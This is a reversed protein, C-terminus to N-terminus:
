SAPSSVFAEQAYSPSHSFLRRLTGKDRWEICLRLLNVYHGKDLQSRSLRTAEKLARHMWCTYFLPEILTKDLGTQRRYHDVRELLLRSLPTDSLLIQAFGQLRDHTGQARAAGVSYSRMFYFLDWLPMGQAEAAEWDLFAVREDPTVVVNWPGPDGHQFVLPFARAHDGVHALQGELFSEHDASLQYISTFRKFLVRLVGAAEHPTAAHADATRSALTTFWDLAALLYPCGATFRTRERFPQGEIATEGIIALRNHYGWFAARPASQPVAVGMEQLLTLARHENELRANYQADRVMKVVYAPKIASSHRRDEEFLFFLVKRSSYDGRAVVGWHRSDGVDVGSAWALDVLYQPLRGAHLHSAAGFLKGQRRIIPVRRLMFREANALLDLASKGATRIGPLFEPKSAESAAPLASASNTAVTPKSSRRKKLHKKVSGFMGATISPSHLGEKLFYAMAQPSQVPVATHCDGRLPTIWFASEVDFAAAAGHGAEKQSFGASLPGPEVYLLGQPKLIRRVDASFRRRYQDGVIFVLDVCHDVFPLSMEEDFVVIQPGTAGGAVKAGHALDNDATVITVQGMRMLTSLAAPTPRGLTVIQDLELSPLLFTWNAAAVEGKLNTGPEFTTALTTDLM